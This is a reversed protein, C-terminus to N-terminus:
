TADEAAAPPDQALVNLADPTALRVFHPLQILEQLASSVVPVAPLLSEQPYALSALTLPQLLVGMVALVALQNSKYFILQSM